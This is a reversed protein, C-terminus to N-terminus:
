PPNFNEFQKVGTRSTSMCRLPEEEEEHKPEPEEEHEDEPDPWTKMVAEMLTCIKQRLCALSQRRLARMADTAEQKYEGRCSRGSAERLPGAFLPALSKCQSIRGM